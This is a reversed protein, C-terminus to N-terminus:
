RGLGKRRYRARTGGGVGPGRTRIRVRSALAASLETAAATDPAAVLVQGPRDFNDAVAQVEDGVGVALDLDLVAPHARVEEEGEIAIVTGPAATLFRTAAACRPSPRDALEQVLGHPWGVAYTELDIGYVTEVLDMVRDGSVRDHSEIIRPGAASMKVETHSVGDRLRVTELFTVVHDVLAAEDEAPLVAPEAHGMEVVGTSLKDTVSVVVHRGNFSFSEVSYEPGDVFEEAFFRDVPFFKALILDKRGRLGVSRRWADGIEGPGEIRVVGRSGTGDVPKLVFPYGYRAGFGRLAAADKIEQAGVTEFGAKALWERMALKDHFRHAVEYSTGDLRLLDNIRGVLEMAQDVLSVVKTFGYAEHAALVLPRAVDWDLYDALILADAAEAQGPLLREKHQLFVVSLGLAKAKEIAQLRGGIILIVEGIRKTM